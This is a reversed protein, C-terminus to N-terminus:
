PGRQKSQNDLTSFLMIYHMDSKKFISAVFPKFTPNENVTGSIIFYELALNTLYAM